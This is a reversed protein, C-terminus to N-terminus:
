IHILSLDAYTGSEELNLTNGMTLVLPTTPSKRIVTTERYSLPPYSTISSYTSSSGLRGNTSSPVEGNVILLTNYLNTGVPYTAQDAQQSGYICRKINIKKPETIGDTWFLLDDIINIGTIIKNPKKFIFNSFGLARKNEPLEFTVKTGATLTKLGLYAPHLPNGDSDNEGTHETYIRWGYYTGGDDPEIKIIRTTPIGDILVNMGPQIGIKRFDGITAGTLNSIHLHEGDGHSDNSLVTDVKYHEVAVFKVANSSVLENEDYEIIYDSYINHAINIVSATQTTFDETASADQNIGTDSVLWYIKNTPNHAISGVCTANSFKDFDTGVGTIATNGKLTQVTGVNSSESTRVEINLADVYDGKPVMREDIDKNMKGGTFSRKLESM